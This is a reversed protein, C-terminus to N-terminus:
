GCNSTMLTALTRRGDRTDRYGVSWATGDPLASVATLSESGAVAPGAVLSWRRGDFVQILAALGTGAPREGVAWLGAASPGAAAALEGARRVKGAQRWAAGDWRLISTGVAWADGPAPVSIGFLDGRADLKAWRWQSGDFHMAAPRKHHYGVAWADDPGSSDVGRLLSKGGGAKTAAVTWASGDWHLVLARETGVGTDGEYGVAWADTPSIAAVGTLAGGGLVTPVATVAWASGDWHLITPLAGAGSASGVAWVDDPGSADVAALSSGATGAGPAAVNAWLSGDWHELLTGTPADPSGTSGVAWADTASLAVVGLLQSGARDPNATAVQEATRTCAPSPSPRQTPLAGGGPVGADNGGFLANVGFGILATVAFAALGNRLARRQVHNV